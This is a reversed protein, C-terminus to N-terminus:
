DLMSKFLRVNDSYPYFIGWAYGFVFSSTEVDGSLQWNPNADALAREKFAFIAPIKLRGKREGDEVHVGTEQTKFSHKTSFSGLRFKLGIQGDMMANGDIHAYASLSCLFLM